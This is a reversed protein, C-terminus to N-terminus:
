AYATYLLSALSRIRDIMYSGIPSRVSGLQSALTGLLRVLLVFPQAIEPVHPIQQAAVFIPV